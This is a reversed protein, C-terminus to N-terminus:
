TVTADSLEPHPTAVRRWKTPESALDLRSLCHEFFTCRGYRFCADPNRTRVDAKMAAAMERATQHVDAMYEKVDDATHEVHRWAFYRDPREQADEQIRTAYDPASEGVIRLNAYLLRPDQPNVAAIAKEELTTPKRWKLKEPPTPEYPRQSPRKVVDYIVGAVDHGMAMAGMEYHIIQPDMQLRQYYAGAADDIAEGTFKHELVWTRGTARDRLLADMKGAQTWARVKRMTVPSVLAHVYEVEVGLIEYDRRVTVRQADYEHLVARLADDDFATWDMPGLGDAAREQAVEAVVDTLRTLAAVLPTVGQLDVGEQIEKSRLWWAELAAHGFTGFRQSHGVDCPRWLDVYMLAHKRKCERFTRARSVTYVTSYSPSATAAVDLPDSDDV